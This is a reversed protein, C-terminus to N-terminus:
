LCQNIISTFLKIVNQGTKPLHVRDTEKDTREDAQRDMWGEILEDTAQRDMQRDIRRDTWRDTQRDMWRVTMLYVLTCVSYVDLGKDKNPAM